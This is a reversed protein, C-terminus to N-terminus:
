EFSDDFSDDFIGGGTNTFVGDPTELIVPNSLGQWKMQVNFFSESKISKGNVIKAYISVPKDIYFLLGGGTAIVIKWNRYKIWDWFDRNDKVNNVEITASHNAGTNTWGVLDEEQIAEPNLYEGRTNRIVFYKQPEDEVANLWFDTDSLDEEIPDEYLDILGIGIIGAFDVGCTRTVYDTITEECFIM